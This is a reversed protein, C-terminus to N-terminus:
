EKEDDVEPPVYNGSLTTNISDFSMEQNKISQAHRAREEEEELKNLQEWASEGTVFKKTDTAAKSTVRKIRDWISEEAM